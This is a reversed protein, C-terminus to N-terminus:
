PSPKPSLRFVTKGQGLNRMTKEAVRLYIGSYYSLNQRDQKSATHFFEVMTRRTTPPSSFYCLTQPYLRAVRSMPSIFVPVQDELNHSDRIQSLLIHDNTGRPDSSIIVESVLVLLLQSRCVM